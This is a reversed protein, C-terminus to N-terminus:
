TKGKEHSIISILRKFRRYLQKEEWKQKRTISTRNTRTNYTKKKRTATILREGHKELYDELRQISADISEKISALRRGGEKRPVYLIDVDDRPHLAKHMNMLKITRQDM